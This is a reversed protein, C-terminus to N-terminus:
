YGNKQFYVTYKINKNNNKPHKKFYIYFTQLRSNYHHQTCKRVIVIYFNIESVFCLSIKNILHVCMIYPTKSFTVKINM